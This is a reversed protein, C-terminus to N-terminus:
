QWGSGARKGQTIQEANPWSQLLKGNYYYAVTSANKTVASAPRNWLSSLHMTLAHVHLATSAVRLVRLMWEQKSM